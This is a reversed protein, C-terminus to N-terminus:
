DESYDKKYKNKRTYKKKNKFILSPYTIRTQVCTEDRVNIEKVIIKNDINDKIILKRKM